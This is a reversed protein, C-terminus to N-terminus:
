STMKGGISWVLQEHMTFIKMVIDVYRWAKGEIVLHDVTSQSATVTIANIPMEM